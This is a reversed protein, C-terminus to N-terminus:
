KRRRGLALMGAIGALAVTGPTPIPALEVGRFAFNTGATALTTVAPTTGDVVRILRNATTDATTAYLVTQGGEIRGTLGRAGIKNTGTTADLFISSALTFGSGSNVYKRIGAISAGGTDDTVFLTNADAFWYDYPSGTLSLVQTFPTSAGPLGNTKWIGIGPTGSGTSFYLDGNFINVIRINTGIGTGTNNVQVTAPGTTGLRVGGNTGSTGGLYFQSGDNSVASRVNNGTYADFNAFTASQNFDVRAVSRATTASATGVVAATGLAANYGAITLYRGDASRTLAGESTASGSNTLRAGAAGTSLNLENGLSVGNWELLSTRSASNGLAVTGDGVRSVIIGTPSFGALATVSGAAVLAASALFSNTM